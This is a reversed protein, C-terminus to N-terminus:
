RAVNAEADVEVEGCISEGTFTCLKEVSDRVPPASEGKWLSKFTSESMVSFTAGTDIEM